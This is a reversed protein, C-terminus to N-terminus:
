NIRHSTSLSISKGRASRPMHNAIRDYIKDAGPLNMEAAEKVMEFFEVCAEHVEVGEALIGAHVGYVLQQVEPLLELLLSVIEPHIKGQEDIRPLHDFFTIITKLAEAMRPVDEESLQKRIPKENM